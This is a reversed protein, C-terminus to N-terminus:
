VEGGDEANNVLAYFREGERYVIVSMEKTTDISEGFWVPVITARKNIPLKVYAVRTGSNPLKQLKLKEVGALKKFEDMSQPLTIAQGNNRVQAIQEDNEAVPFMLEEM